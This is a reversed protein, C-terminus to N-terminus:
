EVGFHKKLEKQMMTIMEVWADSEMNAHSYKEMISDCEQVILQAFKKKDENTWHIGAKENFNYIMQQIRTNMM